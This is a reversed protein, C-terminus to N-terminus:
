SRASSRRASSVIGPIAADRDADPVRLLRDLRRGQRRRHDDGVRAGSRPLRQDARVGEPRDGRGHLEVPRARRGHPDVRDHRRHSRPGRAVALAPHLRPEGGLVEPGPVRLRRPRHRGRAGRSRGVPPRRHLGQRGDRRRHASLRPLGVRARRRDEVPQRLRRHQRHLPHRRSRPAGARDELDRAPQRARLQDRGAPARGGRAPPLHVLGLAAGVGGAEVARHQGDAGARDVPQRRDRHLQVAHHRLRLRRAPALGPPELRRSREGAARRLDGRRLRRQLPPLRDARLGFRDRGPPGDEVPRADHRRQDDVALDDVAARRGQPVGRRPGGVALEGVRAAGRHGGRHGQRGARAHRPALGGARARPRAADRRHRAPRDPDARRRHRDPDRLAGAVDLRAAGRSRGTRAHGPAYSRVPENVAAPVAM